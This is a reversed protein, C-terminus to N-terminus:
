SRLLELLFYFIKNLVISRDTFYLWFYCQIKVWCSTGNHFVFSNLGTIDLSAVVACRLCHTDEFDQTFWWTLDTQQNPFIVSRLFVLFWFISGFIFCERVSTYALPKICGYYNGEADVSAMLLINIQHTTLTAVWWISNFLCHDPQRLCQATSILPAGKQGSLSM